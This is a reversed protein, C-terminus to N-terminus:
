YVEDVFIPVFNFISTLYNAWFVMSSFLVDLTKASRKMSSLKQTECFTSDCGPIGILVRKM